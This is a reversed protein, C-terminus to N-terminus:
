NQMISLRRDLSSYRYSRESFVVAHIRHATTGLNGNFTFKVVLDNLSVGSFLKQDNPVDFCFIQQRKRFTDYSILPEAAEDKLMYGASRLYSMYAEQLEGASLNEYPQVPFIRSNVRLEAATIADEPVRYTPDFGAADDDRSVWCVVRTPRNALSVINYTQSSSQFQNSSYHDAVEVAKDVVNNQSLSSELRQLAPLSPTIVPIRMAIKRVYYSSLVWDGFTGTLWHNNATQVLNVTIRMGRTYKSMDAFSFIEALPVMYRMALGDDSLRWKYENSGVRPLYTYTDTDAVSYAATQDRDKDYAGGLRHLQSGNASSFRAASAPSQNLLRKVEMVQWPDQIAEIEVDNFSLTARDFMRMPDGIVVQQGVADGSFTRTPAATGDTGDHTAVGDVGATATISAQALTLAGGLAITPAVTGTKSFALTPSAITPLFIEFELFAESPDLLTDLDKSNIRISQELSTFNEGKDPVYKIMHREVVDECVDDPEFMDLQPECVENKGSESM